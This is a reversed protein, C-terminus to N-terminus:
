TCTSILVKLWHLGGAETTSGTEFHFSSNMIFKQAGQPLLIKFLLLQYHTQIEFNNSFTGKGQM